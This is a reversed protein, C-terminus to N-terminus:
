YYTLVFLGLHMVRRTEELLDLIVRSKRYQLTASTLLSAPIEADIGWIATRRQQKQEAAKKCRGVATARHHRDCTPSPRWVLVKRDPNSYIPVKYRNKFAYKAAYSLSTSRFKRNTFDEPKTYVLFNDPM